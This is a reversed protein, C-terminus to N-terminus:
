QFTRMAAYKSAIAEFHPQCSLDPESSSRGVGDLMLPCLMHLDVYVEHAISDGDAINPYEVDRSGRLKSVDEGISQGGRGERVKM